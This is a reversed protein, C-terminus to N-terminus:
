TLDKIYVLDYGTVNIKTVTGVFAVYKPLTDLPYYFDDTLEETAPTLDSVGITEGPEDETGYIIISTLGHLEVRATQGLLQSTHAKTLYVKGTEIAM